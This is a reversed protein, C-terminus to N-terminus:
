AAASLEGGNTRARLEAIIVADEFDVVTESAGPPMTGEPSWMRWRRGRRWAEVGLPRDGSEFVQGPVAALVDEPRGQVLARGEDLVVVNAAREAEDTYSTAVVVAAGDAASRAMMRWLEARSVPDVGTTPEDLVLLRPEHILAMALALKRRMGGSLNGALRDRAGTLNTRSLLEKSRARFQAASCGYAESTFSLNEGVTLDPYAGGKASVYGIDHSTPREVTGESPELAGALVRLITTKGAGDGGLVVTISAPAVEISVETVAVEDGFRVMLDSVGWAMM